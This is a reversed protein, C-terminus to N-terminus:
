SANLTGSAIAEQSHGDKENLEVFELTTFEHRTSCIDGFKHELPKSTTKQPHCVDDRLIIFVLGVTEM